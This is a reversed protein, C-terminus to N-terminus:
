IGTSNSYSTSCVVVCVIAVTLQNRVVLSSLCTKLSFSLLSVVATRRLVIVGVVLMIITTITTTNTTTTSMAAPVFEKADLRVQVLEILVYGSDVLLVLTGVLRLHDFTNRIKQQRFM